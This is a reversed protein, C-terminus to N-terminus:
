GKEDTQLLFDDSQYRYLSIGKDTLIWLNGQEGRAIQYIQNGPLSNSLSSNHIYKKLEQGDFRGLGSRTGMWVFGRNDAAICHVTSPLGAKLSIQKYYYHEARLHYSFFMQVISVILLLKTANMITLNYSETKM